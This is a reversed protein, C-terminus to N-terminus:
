KEEGNKTRQKQIKDYAVVSVIVGGEERQTQQAGEINHCWIEDTKTIVYYGKSKKKM